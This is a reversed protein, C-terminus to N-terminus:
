ALFLLFVGAVAVLSGIIERLTVPEKFVIASPAIILVPTISM